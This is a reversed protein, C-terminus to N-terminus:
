NSERQKALLRSRAAALLARSYLKHFGLLATFGAGLRREGTEADVIPVVASGFYLTTAGSQADAASEIMLWSRTRQQIDCLLLQSDNREEVTWAAFRDISGRALQAAEFDSSPLSVAWKIILRELKFLGTTYFAEVYQVLSVDCAVPVCYCDTYAGDLRYRDLLAGAPLASPRVTSM